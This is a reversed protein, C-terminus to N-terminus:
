YKSITPIRAKGADQFHLYWHTNWQASRFEQPIWGVLKFNTPVFGNMTSDRHSSKSDTPPEDYSDEKGFSLGDFSQLDSLHRIFEESVLLRICARVETQDM